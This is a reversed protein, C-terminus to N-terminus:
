NLALVGSPDLRTKMALYNRYDARDIVPTGRDALGISGYLYPRGELTLAEQCWGEIRAASAACAFEDSIAPMFYTGIGFLWDGPIKHCALWPAANSQARHCLLYIGALSNTEAHPAKNLWAEISAVLMLFGAPALVLDSWMRRHSPYRRLWQWVDEHLALADGAQEYAGIFHGRPLAQPDSVGDAHGVFCRWQWANDAGRDCFALVKELNEGKRSVLAVLDHALASLSDFTFGDMASTTKRAVLKLTVEAVYGLAGRGALVSRLIADDYGARYHKRGHAPSVLVLASVHDTQAGHAVSTVGYGGVSLTGGITSALNSTLVPLAWATERLYHEAAAWTASADITLFEGSHSLRVRKKKPRLVIGRSLTQGGSSGAAGRMSVPVEYRQAIEFVRCIDDCHGIDVVCLPRRQIHRGFDTRCDRVAAGDAWVRSCVSLSDALLSALRLKEKM